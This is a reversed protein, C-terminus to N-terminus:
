SELTPPVFTRAALSQNMEWLSHKDEGFLDYRTILDAANVEEEHQEKIFWNLVQQTRYDRDSVSLDYLDNISATIEREHALARTLPERFDNLPVTPDAIATFHVNADNEILYEVFIMAHAMEEKAQVNYWNQFGELGKVGYYNAFTQYLYASFFEKNIQENIKEIMKESLM